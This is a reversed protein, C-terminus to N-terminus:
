DRLDRLNPGSVAHEIHYSSDEADQSFNSSPEASVVIAVTRKPARPNSTSGASRSSTGKNLGILAAGAGLVGAAAGVATGAISTNEEVERSEAEESWREHDGYDDRQEEQISKLGRGVVAMGAALRKSAGDYLQQPSPTRRYIGGVRSLFTEDSERVVVQNGYEDIVTRTEIDTEDVDRMDKRQRALRQAYEADSSSGYDVDDDHESDKRESWIWAAVGAVAGAGIVVLPIWYGLTTRNSPGPLNSYVRRETRRDYSYAM